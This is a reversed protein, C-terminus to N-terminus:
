LEKNSLFSFYSQGYQRLEVFKPHNAFNQRSDHEIILLGNEKLLTQQFVINVLLQFKPSDYPPDAFIVDYQQNHNGLFKFVDQKRIELVQELKFAQANQQIYRVCAGFKEVCCVHNAGRSAFEYALNGTGSFLDLVDIGDLEIWNSLINFLSEKAYDTTPRTKWKSSPMDFRRGKLFGSVIRM